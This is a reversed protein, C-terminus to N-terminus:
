IEMRIEELKNLIQKLLDLIEANTNDAVVSTVFYGTNNPCNSGAHVVNCRQCYYASYSNPPDGASM